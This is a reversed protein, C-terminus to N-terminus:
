AVPKAPLSFEVRGGPGDGLSISGGHVDVIARCIALGLGSSGPRSRAGDAQTFPEFADARFEAPFGSGEDTVAVRVWDDTGEVEVVVSGGSPSHRIANDVLNRIARALDIPDGEIVTRGSRRGVLEVENTVALPRLADVAEDLLEDLLVTEWVGPAPMAELRAFETLQSLLRECTGVHREATVLYADPDEALGDRVSEVAARIAALPTRLDHGVSTLLQMRAQALLARERDVEALQSTMDDVARAARGVEDRRVIGTKVALDGSAVERVVQGLRRLDDTLPTTLAYGVVVAIGCSLVLVVVFMRYDHGSVFMARAAASSAVVGLALSSFGIAIVTGAISARVSVWRRLLPTLAAATVAPASLVMLLASRDAGPPRLLVMALAFTVAVVAVLVGILAGYWRWTRASGVLDNM